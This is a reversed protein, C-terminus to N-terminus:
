VATHVVCLHVGITSQRESYVKIRIRVGSNMVDRALNCHTGEKPRRKVGQVRLGRTSGNKQHFYKKDGACCSVFAFHKGEAKLAECFNDHSGIVHGPRM